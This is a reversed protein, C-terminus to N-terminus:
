IDGVPCTTASVDITRSVIEGSDMYVNWVSGDNYKTSSCCYYSSPFGQKFIKKLMADIKSVNKSIILVQGLAPFYGRNGNPFIYNNCAYFLPIVEESYKSLHANTNKKGNFDLKAVNSNSSVFCNEVMESITSFDAYDTREPNLLFQSTKGEVNGSLAVCAAKDPDIGKLPSASLILKKPEYSVGAMWASTMNEYNMNVKNFDDGEEHTLLVGNEEKKFVYLGENTLTKGEKTLITYAVDYSDGYTSSSKKTFTMDISQYYNLASQTICITAARSTIYGPENAYVKGKTQVNEYGVFLSDLCFTGDEMLMYVGEPLFTKSYLEELGLFIKNIPEDGLYINNAIIKGM